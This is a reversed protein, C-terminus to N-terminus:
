KRSLIKINGGICIDTLKWETMAEKGICVAYYVFLLQILEFQLQWDVEDLSLSKMADTFEALRASSAALVEVALHDAQIQVSRTQENTKKERWTPWQQPRVSQPVSPSSIQQRASHLVWLGLGTGMPQQIVADHGQQQSMGRVSQVVRLGQLCFFCWMSYKSM